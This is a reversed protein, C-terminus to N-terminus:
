CSVLCLKAMIKEKFPLESFKELCTLFDLPSSVELASGQITSETWFVRLSRLLIFCEIRGDGIQVEYVSLSPTLWVMFTLLQLARAVCKELTSFVKTKWELILNQICKELWKESWMKGKGKGKALMWEVILPCNFWSVFWSVSIGIQM